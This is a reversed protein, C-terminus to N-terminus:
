ELLKKLAAELKDGHTETTVLRGYLLGVCVFADPAASRFESSWLPDVISLLDIGAAHAAAVEDLTTVHLMSLQRVGKGARLDAVTPPAM